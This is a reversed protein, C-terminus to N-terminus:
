LVHREGLSLAWARRATLVTGSQCGSNMTRTGWVLRRQAAQAHLLPHSPTGSSAHRVMWGSRACEELGVETPEATSTYCSALLAADRSLRQSHKFTAPTRSQTSSQETLSPARNVAGRRSGHHGSLEVTPNAHIIDHRMLMPASDDRHSTQPLATDGADPSADHGRWDTESGFPGGRVVWQGSPSTETTSGSQSPSGMSM